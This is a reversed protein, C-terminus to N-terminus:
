MTAVFSKLFTRHYLLPYSLNITDLKVHAVNESQVNIRQDEPISVNGNKELDRHVEHLRERVAALLEVVQAARRGVERDHGRSKFSTHLRDRRAAADLFFSCKGPVAPHKRRWTEFKSEMLKM